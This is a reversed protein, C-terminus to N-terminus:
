KIFVTKKVKGVFKKVMESWIELVYIKNSVTYLYRSNLTVHQSIQHHLSPFYSIKDHKKLKDM